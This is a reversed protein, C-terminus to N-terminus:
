FLGSATRRLADPSVLQINKSAAIVPKSCPWSECFAAVQLWKTHLMGGKLRKDRILDRQYALAVGVHHLKALANTGFFYYSFGLEYIPSSPRMQKSDSYYQYGLVTIRTVPEWPNPMNMVGGRPKPTFLRETLVMELLNLRESEEGNKIFFRRDYEKLNALLRRILIVQTGNLAVNVEVPANSPYATNAFDGFSRLKAKLITGSAKPTEKNVIGTLTEDIERSLLQEAVWQSDTLSAKPSGSMDLAIRRQAARLLGRIEYAETPSIAPGQPTEGPEQGRLSVASLLFTVILLRNRM